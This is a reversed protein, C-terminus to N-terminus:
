GAVSGAPFTQGSWGCVSFPWVSSRYINERLDGVPPENINLSSWNEHTEKKLHDLFKLIYWLANELSVNYQYSWQGHACNGQFHSKGKFWLFQHGHINIFTSCKFM